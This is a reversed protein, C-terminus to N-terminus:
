IEKFEKEKLKNEANKNREIIKSNKVHDIQINENCNYNIYNVDNLV